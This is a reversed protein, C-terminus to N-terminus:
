EVLRNFGSSLISVDDAGASYALGIEVSPCGIIEVELGYQISGAPQIFLGPYGRFQNSRGTGGRQRLAM